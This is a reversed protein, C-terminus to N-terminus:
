TCGTERRKRTARMAAIFNHAALRKIPAHAMPVNGSIRISSPGDGGGARRIISESRNETRASALAHLIGGGGRRHAAHRWVAKQNAGRAPSM